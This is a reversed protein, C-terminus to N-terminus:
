IRCRVKSVSTELMQSTSEWEAFREQLWEAAADQMRKRLMSERRPGHSDNRHADEAADLEDQAAEAAGQLRKFTGQRVAQLSARRTAKELGTRLHGLVLRFRGIHKADSPGLESTSSSAGGQGPGDYGIETSSSSPGALVLPTGGADADRLVHSCCSTLTFCFELVVHVVRYPLKLFNLPPPAVTHISWSHVARVFQFRSTAELESWVSDFTKGMMAIIMNLLLVVSVVLYIDMLLRGFLPHSSARVCEFYGDGTIGGEFLLWFARHPQSLLVGIEDGCGADSAIGDGGGFYQTPDPRHRHERYLATLAASFAVLVVSLLLLCRLVDQLM